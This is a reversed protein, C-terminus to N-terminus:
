LKRLILKIGTEIGKGALYGILMVTLIEFFM